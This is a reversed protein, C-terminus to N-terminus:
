NIIKALEIAWNYIEDDQKAWTAALILRVFVWKIIREQSLDTLVAIKKTRENFKDVVTTQDLLEAKTIYNFAAVEFAPEGIIGKPDISLWESGQQIINDHHLDGHLVFAQTPSALLEDKLKRAKSLLHSPVHSAKNDDLDKLWYTVHTFSNLNVVPQFHLRKVVKAYEFFVKDFQEPYISLLTIGPIAQELLLTNDTESHDLLAISGHHKFYNLANKEAILEERDCGIKIVVPKGQKICKAVYHYTMNPFPELETLEWEKIVKAIIVPLARLWNEGKRGFNNTIIKKFKEALVIKESKM